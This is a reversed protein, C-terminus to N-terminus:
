PTVPRPSSWHLGNDNSIVQEVLCPRSLCYTRNVLYQMMHFQKAGDLVLVTDPNWLTGNKSGLFQLDSWTRGEDESRKIALQKKTEDDCNAIRAEAVAILSGPSTGQVLSPIRYCAVGGEGAYFVTSTLFSSSVLAASAVVVALLM